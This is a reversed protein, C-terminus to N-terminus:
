RYILLKKSGYEILKKKGEIGKESEERKSSFIEPIHELVKKKWKMIQSTHVGYMSSLEATTKEEKIAEIAVKAKFKNTYQKRKGNM